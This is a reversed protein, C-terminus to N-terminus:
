LMRPPFLPHIPHSMSVGMAQRRIRVGLSKNGPRRGLGQGLVMVKSCRWLMSVHLPNHCHQSKLTVSPCPQSDLANQDHLQTKLDGKDSHGLQSKLADSDERVQALHLVLTFEANTLISDQSLSIVWPHFNWDRPCVSINRLDWSITTDNECHHAHHYSKTHLSMDYSLPSGISLFRLM